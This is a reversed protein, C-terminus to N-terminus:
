QRGALTLTQPPPGLPQNGNLAFRKDLAVQLKQVAHAKVFQHHNRTVKLRLKRRDQRLQNSVYVAHRDDLDSLGAVIM